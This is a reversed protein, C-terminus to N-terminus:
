NNRDTLPWFVFPFASLSFSLLQGMLFLPAFLSKFRSSRSIRSRSIVLTVSSGNKPSLPLNPFQEAPQRPQPITQTTVAPQTTNM